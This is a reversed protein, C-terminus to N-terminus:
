AGMKEMIQEIKSVALGDQVELVSRGAFIVEELEPDYPVEGLYQFGLHAARERLSEVKEERVMNLLLYQREVPNKIEQILMRIKRASDFSLPNENAVVVLDDVRSATRRSIHELGAENDMVVWQYHSGLREAFKRLLNNIYCYCAPGESRGMTILDFKPTEVIVQHLGLEIHAEKSMGPPFDKMQRLTEERLDGITKEVRVGLVVGLSAAPDADIALVPGGGRECLYRIMLAAVTTKGTGGKGAVAITKAM